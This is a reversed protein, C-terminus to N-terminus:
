RDQGYEQHFVAWFIRNRPIIALSIVLELLSDSKLDATEKKHPGRFKKEKNYRQRGCSCDILGTIYM